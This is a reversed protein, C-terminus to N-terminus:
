GPRGRTHTVAPNPTAARAATTSFPRPVSTPTPHPTANIPRSAATVTLLLVAAGGTPPGATGPQGPTASVTVAAPTSSAARVAASDQGAQIRARPNGPSPPAASAM